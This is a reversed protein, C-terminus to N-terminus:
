VRVGYEIVYVGEVQKVGEGMQITVQETVESPSGATSTSCSDCDSDGSDGSVKHDHHVLM